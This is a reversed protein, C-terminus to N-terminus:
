YWILKARHSYCGQLLAKFDEWDNKAYAVYRLAYHYKVDKILDLIKKCLRYPIEGGCDSMFLFEVLDRDEEKFREHSLIQETKKDFWICYDTSVCKILNAYHEGLEKDFTEAIVKRIRFIMSYSGDLRIANKYNSTITLGM